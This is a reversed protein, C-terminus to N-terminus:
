GRGKERDSRKQADLMARWDDIPLYEGYIEEVNIRAEKEGDRKQLHYKGARIKGRVSAVSGKGFLREELAAAEKVTVRSPDGVRALLLMAVAEIQAGQRCKELFLQELVAIQTALDALTLDKM